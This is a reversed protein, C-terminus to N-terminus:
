SFAPRQMSDLKVDTRNGPAGGCIMYAVLVNLRLFYYILASPVLVFPRIDIAISGYSGSTSSSHGTLCSECRSREALVETSTGGSLLEQAWLVLQPGRREGVSSM